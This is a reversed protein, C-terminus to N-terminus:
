ETVIGSFSKGNYSSALFINYKFLDKKDADTFTGGQSYYLTDNYIMYYIGVGFTTLDYVSAFIDSDILIDSDDVEGDYVKFYYKNDAKRLSEDKIEVYYPVGAKMYDQKKFVMKFKTNDEPDDEVRNLAYINLEEPPIMNYRKSTFGRFSNSKFQFSFIKQDYGNENLGYMVKSESPIYGILYDYSLGLNDIKLEYSETNNFKKFRDM